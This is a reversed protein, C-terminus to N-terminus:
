CPKALMRRSSVAVGALWPGGKCAPRELSPPRLGSTYGRDQVAVWLTFVCQFGVSDLNEQTASEWKPCALLLTGKKLFKKLRNLNGTSAAKLLMSALLVWELYLPRKPNRKWLDGDGNGMEPLCPGGGRCDRSAWLLCKYISVCACVCKRNLM